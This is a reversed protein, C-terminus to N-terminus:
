GTEEEELRAKVYDIITGLPFKSPLHRIDHAHNDGPAYTDEMDRDYNRLHQKFVDYSIGNDILYTAIHAGTGKYLKVTEGDLTKLKDNHQKRNELWDMFDTEFDHPCYHQRLSTLGSNLWSNTQNEPLAMVQRQRELFELSGQQILWDFTKEKISLFEDLRAIANIKRVMTEPKDAIVDDAYLATLADRAPLRFCADRLANIGTEAATKDTGAFSSKTFKERYSAFSPLDTLVEAASVPPKLSALYRDYAGLNWIAKQRARMATDYEQRQGKASKLPLPPKPYLKEFIDVASKDPYIPDGM